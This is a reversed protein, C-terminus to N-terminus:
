NDDTRYEVFARDRLQRLWEQYAEDAKRERLILRAEQRKREGSVPAQRRALVQVLHWGFPTEFPQSVEGVKLSNMEREFEPVTDGPYIWGLDGGKVSSPDDSNLRALEAFDAGHIIRDRLNELKRKADAASVIESTKVLIHRAHTQEVMAPAGGGRRGILKILHFGAPSRIIGSVEGPKLGDLAKAYLDPLRDRSHWGMAGGQLADPADSYAVALKAFDAGQRLQALVEEARARQRNVQEPSAQEPLRLVIHSLNFETALDPSAAQQSLFYDIENDTVVIRDDVERERLRSLLIEDRIEERFKDFRIGDRELAQRFQTLSMKNREALREVTRDLQLDDVRLGTEKALQLQLRDMIMRELVQKQLLDAAPLPTGQQRLQQTVTKVREALEGSTIVESNVVAVIRDVLVPPAPRKRRGPAAPVLFWRRLPSGRLRRRFQSDCTFTVRLFRITTVRSPDPQARSYGPINRKLTELPNSGIRSFGNLELQVFVATTSTGTAAAFRQMVLRGIWCGANYEFGGLTEVLRNERLSYNYRGVGNWGGGLPWQASVDVQNLSGRTFRYGLNLVKAIEPQFRAGLGLRDFFNRQPDYQLASDLTWHSSIHGSLAALLDSTKNNRTPTVNDNLTVQQTEFYYRQGVTAKLVEQGSSPSLMRTTAALTLQNADAIRDGGNFINESFIQAYNFDALGTDFLPIKSQDRYPVYLYYLRPELTQRFRRGRFDTDREFTLGSDLSAIPLARHITM